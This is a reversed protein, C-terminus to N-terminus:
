EISSVKRMSTAATIMTKATATGTPILAAAKIRATRIVMIRPIGNSTATQIIATATKITGTPKTVIIM